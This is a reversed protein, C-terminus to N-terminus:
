GPTDVVPISVAAVYRVGASGTHSAIAPKPLPHIEGSPQIRRASTANGIAPLTTIAHSASRFVAGPSRGGIM